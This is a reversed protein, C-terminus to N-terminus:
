GGALFLCASLRIHIKRFIPPPLPLYHLSLDPLYFKSALTNPQGADPFALALSFRTSPKWTEFAIEPMEALSIGKVRPNFSKATSVFSSFFFFFFFNYNLRKAFSFILSDLRCFTPFFLPLNTFLFYIWRIVLQREWGNYTHVCIYENSVHICVRVSLTLLTYTSICVYKNRSWEVRLVTISWKEWDVRAISRLGSCYYIFTVAVM